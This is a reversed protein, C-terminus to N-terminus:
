RPHQVQDSLGGKGQVDNLWATPLEAPILQIKWEGRRAAQIVEASVPKSWDCGERALRNWVNQNHDYVDKSSFRATM